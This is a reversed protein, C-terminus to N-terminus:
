NILYTALTLYTAFTVWILYPIQLYASLPYSKYFTKIMAIISFLLAVIWFFALLFAKFRFFIISWFFNLILQLTYIKVSERKEKETGNIIILAMSIGMLTYLITWVIPFIFGPPTLPAKQFGSFADSGGAFLASLGGVALPILINVAYIKFKSM